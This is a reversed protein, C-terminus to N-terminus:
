VSSENSSRRAGSEKSSLERCYPSRVQSSGASFVGQKLAGQVSSDKSSLEKCHLSRAQSSRASFVGQKLAGQM